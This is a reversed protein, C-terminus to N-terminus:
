DKKIGYHKLHLYMNVVESIEVLKSSNVKKGTKINIWETPNETYINYNEKKFTQITMPKKFISQFITKQYELTLEQAGDIRSEYRTSYYEKM